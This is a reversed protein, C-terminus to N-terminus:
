SLHGSHSVSLTERGFYERRTKAIENKSNPKGSGNQLFSDWQKSHPVSKLNLDRRYNLKTQYVSKM